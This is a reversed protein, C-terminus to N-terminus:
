SREEEEAAQSLRAMWVALGGGALLAPVVSLVGRLGLLREGLNFVAYRKIVPDTLTLAWDRMLFTPYTHISGRSLAGGVPMPALGLDVRLAHGLKAYAFFLESGRLTGLIIPSTITLVLMNVFSLAALLGLAANARRDTPLLLLLLAYFPLAVIQYRPGAETGGYWGNFTANALLALLMNAACLMWFSRHRDRWAYFLACVSLVLVPMYVFLGRSTSLTLGYLARLSVGGFLGLVRSRDVMTAASYSSALTLPSGFVIGQYALFVALPALGGAIVAPLRERRADDWACAIVLTLALPAAGYDTLVALGALLGAWAAARRGPAVFCALAMVEFAAATTHGWLSTSFPLLLTAGYLVLTVAVARRRDSALRLALRYFFAASLALPLVTVWLNILYANLLVSRISVPDIGARREGHYLAAYAPIGLLFSGPAKNSYYHPSHAANRAFDGTNLGADPDTLFTDIRLTHQDPGPEVFSWIPDYRATQNWGYGNYFYGALVLVFAFVLVEIRPPTLRKM